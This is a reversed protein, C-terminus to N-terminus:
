ALALGEDDFATSTLKSDVMALTERLEAVNLM